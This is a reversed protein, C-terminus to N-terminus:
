QKFLVLMDIKKKSRELSLGITNLVKILSEPSEPQFSFKIDFKKNVGTADIVPLKGVGYDELYGAFDHMTISQQNIEGHSSYYTRIGSKNLPIKNFKKLDQIKLVEVDRNQQEIKAQIDFKKLLHQRLIPLLDKKNEVILDLCYVQEKHDKPINNIVRSYPFDGFAITYLRSLSVNICTIRRGKFVNDNLYRTSIAATGQIEPQIMFRSKVTDEAFFYTKILDDHSILKDQKEVLHVKKNSIISDIVSETVSQPITNAILKGDQSILVSHPILQHPFLKSIYYNTDIAFWLNSPKVKLYQSIRKNTEGTVTIVQLDNPYKNQLQKLHPMAEICSGCWTAWFDILVIKGRLQSLNINNVPANLITKFDIDPALENNKPQAFAYNVLLILLLIIKKM